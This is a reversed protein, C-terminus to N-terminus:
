SVLYSDILYSSSSSLNVMSFCLQSDKEVYFESIGYHEGGVAYPHNNKNACHYQGIIIIEVFYRIEFHLM